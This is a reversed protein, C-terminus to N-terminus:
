YAMKAFLILRSKSMLQLLLLNQADKRHPWATPLISVKEQCLNTQKAGYPSQLWREVTAGNASLWINRSTIGFYKIQIHRQIAKVMDRRKRFKWIIGFLWVIRGVSTQRRPNSIGEIGSQLRPPKSLCGFTDYLRNRIPIVQFMRYSIQMLIVNFSLYDALARSIHPSPGELGHQM